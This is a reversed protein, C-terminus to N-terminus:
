KVTETGAVKNSDFLGDTWGFLLNMFSDMAEIFKQFLAASSNKINSFFNTPFSAITNETLVGTHFSLVDVMKLEDIFISRLVQETEGVADKGEILLEAESPVYDNRLKAILNNIFSNIMAGNDEYIKNLEFYCLMYLHLEDADGATAIRTKPLPAFNFKEYKNGGEEVRTVYLCDAIFNLLGDVSNLEIGSYPDLGPYAGSRSKATMSPYRLIFLSEIARQFSYTYNKCFNQLLQEVYLVPNKYFERYMDTLIRAGMYLGKETEVNLLVNKDINVGVAQMIDKVEFTNANCWNDQLLDDLGSIDTVKVFFDYADISKNDTFVVTDAPIETFNPYLLKGIFNAIKIANKSIEDPSKNEFLTETKWTKCITNIIQNNGNVRMLSFTGKTLDYYYNYHVEDKKTYSNYVIVKEEIIDGFIEKDVDKLGYQYNYGSLAEACADYDGKMSCTSSRRGAVAAAVEEEHIHPNTELKYRSYNWFYAGTNKSYLMDYTVGFMKDNSNASIFSDFTEKTIKQGGRNVSDYGLDNISEAFPSDTRGAIIPDIIKGVIDEHGGTGDPRYNLDQEGKASVSLCMAFSSLIVAVTLILCLLKKM